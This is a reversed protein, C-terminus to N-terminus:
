STLLRFGPHAHLLCGIREHKPQSVFFGSFKKRQWDTTKDSFEHHHTHYQHRLKSFMRAHADM